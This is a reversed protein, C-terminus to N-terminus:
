PVVPNFNKADAPDGRGSYKARLPYPYVPRTFTVRTGSDLPMRLFWAAIWAKMEPPSDALQEAWEKPLTASILWADDPHAGIMMEPPTAKEVWVEIHKLYDIAYAGEGGSCHGMGPVMFLRAFDQTRVRGGMTREVTEYYDVTNAPVVGADNEGQYIILKGGAAKFKRLDPNAANLLSEQIGSNFRKYDRDFDFDKEQWDPGAAPMVEYRFYPLAWRSYHSWGLESGIPSGGTYIKEGKSNTPGRYVKKVAEAQARTICTSTKEAKCVLAAPDFDCARPNGIVGDKVGDDMDCKQLAAEHVLQLDARSLLPRSDKDRLVVDNWVYQMTSDSDNIWPAGAVIGDFDWPFRQAEVLAQRGGTSCGTFYSYKPSESFYRETIAKGAIAVVHAARYGFDVQAQLNNLAWLGGAGRHGMDSIICAYGRRLPGGCSEDDIGSDETSGCDGGCGRELFRGNWNDAPLALNFGVTSVVYGEVECHAPRDHNADIAKAHTVRTPADVIESFDASGLASCRTSWTDAPPSREADARCDNTTGFFIMWAAIMSFCTKV